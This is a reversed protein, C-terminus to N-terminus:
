QLFLEITGGRGLVNTPHHEGAVAQVFTALHQYRDLEDRALLLEAELDGRGLGGSGFHDRYCGGDGTAGRVSGCPLTSEYPEVKSDPAFGNIQIPIFSAPVHCISEYAVICAHGRRVRVVVNVADAFFM